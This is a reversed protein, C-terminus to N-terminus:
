PWEGQHRKRAIHSDINHQYKRQNHKRGNHHMRDGGKDALAERDLAKLKNEAMVYFSLSM